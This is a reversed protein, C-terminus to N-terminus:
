FGETERLDGTVNLHQRSPFSPFNLHFELYHVRISIVQKCILVMIAKCGFCRNFLPRNFDDRLSYLGAMMWICIYNCVIDYVVSYIWKMVVSIKLFRTVETIHLRRRAREQREDYPMTWGNAPPWKPEATRTYVPISTVRSVSVARKFANRYSLVTVSVCVCAWIVPICPGTMSWPCLLQKLRGHVVTVETRKAIDFDVRCTNLLWENFFLLSSFSRLDLFYIKFFLVFISINIKIYISLYININKIYIIYKIRTFWKVRVFSSLFSCNM